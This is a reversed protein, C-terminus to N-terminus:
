RELFNFSMEVGSKEVGLKGVMCKEVVRNLFDHNFLGPNFLEHNFHRHNLPGSKFSPTSIDKLRFTTHLLFNEVRESTPMIFDM